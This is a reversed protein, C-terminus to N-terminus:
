DLHQLFALPSVKAAAAAKEKEVELPEVPVTENTLFRDREPALLVFCNGYFHKM